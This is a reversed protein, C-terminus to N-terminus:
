SGAPSEPRGAIGPDATNHGTVIIINDRTVTFDDSSMRRAIADRLESMGESTSYQLAQQGRESLVTDVAQRVREVPFLEPAPLGGAFSIIDPEQTVKLIERIASPRMRQARDAFRESWNVM